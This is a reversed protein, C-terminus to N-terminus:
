LSKVWAKLQKSEINSKVGWRRSYTYIKKKPVSPDLWRFGIFRLSQFKPPTDIGLMESIYGLRRLVADNKLRISYEFMRELNLTERAGKIARMIEYIGGCLDPRDMCDVITKEKDSFYINKEHIKEIGFFKNKSITVFRFKQNGYSLKKKRKPTAIFVTHPTQDTLGWYSLASWYGVYYKDILYPVVTYADEVWVGEIGSRAPSLVYKGREIETIRNKRKLRYIVNRVSAPSTALISRAENYTFVRKGLEEITLILTLEQPGLYIKKTIMIENYSIINYLTYLCQPKDIDNTDVLQM